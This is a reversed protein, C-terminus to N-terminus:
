QWIPLSASLSLLITLVLISRTMLKKGSQEMDRSVHTFHMIAGVLICITCISCALMYTFGLVEANSLKLLQTSLYDANSLLLYLNGVDVVTAGLVQGLVYFILGLVFSGKSASDSLTTAYIVLGVILFVYFFRVCVLYMVALFGSVTRLVDFSPPSSIQLLPLWLSASLSMMRPVTM